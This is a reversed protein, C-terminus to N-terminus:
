GCRSRPSYLSQQPLDDGNEHDGDVAALGLLRACVAAGCRVESGPPNPEEATFLPSLTITGVIQCPEIRRNRASWARWATVFGHLRM